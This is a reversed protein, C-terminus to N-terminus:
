RWAAVKKPRINFPDASNRSRLEGAVVKQFWQDSDLRREGHMIKLMMHM